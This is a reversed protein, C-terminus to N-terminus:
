AELVSGEKKQVQSIGQRESEIKKKIGELDKDVTAAVVWCATQFLFFVLELSPACSTMSERVAHSFIHQRRRGFSLWNCPDVGHKPDQPIPAPQVSGSSYCLRPNSGAIVRICVM